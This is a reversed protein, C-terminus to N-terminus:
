KTAERLIKPIASIIERGEPGMRWIYHRRNMYDVMWCGECKDKWAKELFRVLTQPNNDQLRRTIWGGKVPASKIAVLLM